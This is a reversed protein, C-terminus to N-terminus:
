GTCYKEALVGAIPDSVTNSTYHVSKLEFGIGAPQVENYSISLGLESSRFCMLNVRFKVGNQGSKAWLAWQRIQNREHGFM